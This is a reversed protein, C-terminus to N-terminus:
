LISEVGGKSALTLLKLSPGSPKKDGREWKSVLSPTVNLAMAFVAQSMRAQERIGRIEQPQLQKVPTLCAADFRRKTAKDIAGVAALDEVALHLSRLPDSRYKKGPGSLIWGEGNRVSRSPPGNRGSQAMVIKGFESFAEQETKSLNAKTNKPFGYVFVAVAGRKYVLM